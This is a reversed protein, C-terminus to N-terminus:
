RHVTRAEPLRKRDDLRAARWLFIECAHAGLIGCAASVLWSGAVPGAVLAGMVGGLAGTAIYMAIRQWWPPMDRVYPSRTM